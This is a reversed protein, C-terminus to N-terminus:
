NHKKHVSRKDFTKNFTPLFGFLVYRINTLLTRFGNRNLHKTDFMLADNVNTHNLFHFRITETMKSLRQNIEMTEEILLKDKRKLISSIYVLSEPSTSHILKVLYDYKKIIKDINDHDLNNIGVNILIKKPFTKFEAKEVISIVDDILPTYIHQCKLERNVLNPKLFKGNSDFFM